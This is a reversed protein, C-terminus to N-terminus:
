SRRSKPDISERHEYEGQPLRELPVGQWGGVVKDFFDDPWGSIVERKVLSALYRSVSMNAAEAEQRIKEALDEPVYFHLQPM